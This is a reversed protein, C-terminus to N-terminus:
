VLERKYLERVYIRMNKTGMSANCPACVPRLNDLDITGGDKEPIVHGTVFERASIDREKCCLCKSEGQEKGIYKNWVETKRSHPISMKKVKKAVISDPNVIDKVKKDVVSDTNNHANVTEFVSSYLRPYEELYDTVSPGNNLTSHNMEKDKLSKESFSIMIDPNELIYRINEHTKWIYAISILYSIAMNKKLEKLYNFKTIFKQTRELAESWDEENFDEDKEIISRCKISALICDDITKSSTRFVNVLRYIDWVWNNRGCKLMDCIRHGINKELERTLIFKCFKFSKNKFGDCQSIGTGSQWRTFIDKRQEFSLESKIISLTVDYKNFRKVENETMVRYVKTISKGRKQKSNMSECYESMLQITKPSRYYVFEKTISKDDGTEIYYSFQINDPTQEIFEKITQLRNQGDICENIDNCMYLLFIPIPCNEMISKILNSKQKDDWVPGRQYPPRCKLQEDNILLESHLSIIAKNSVTPQSPFLNAM